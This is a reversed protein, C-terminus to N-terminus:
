FYSIWRSVAVAYFKILVKVEFSKHKLSFQLKQYYQITKM